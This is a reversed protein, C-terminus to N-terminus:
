QVDILNRASQSRLLRSHKLQRLEDLSQTAVARLCGRMIRLEGANNDNLVYDDCEYSCDVMCM